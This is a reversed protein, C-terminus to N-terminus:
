QLDCLHEPIAIRVLRLRLPTRAADFTPFEEFLWRLVPRGLFEQDIPGEPLLSVRRSRSAAQTRMAEIGRLFYTAPLVLSNLNQCHTTQLLTAGIQNSPIGARSKIAKQIFWNMPCRQDLRRNGALSRIEIKQNRLALNQRGSQGSAASESARVPGAAPKEGAAPASM